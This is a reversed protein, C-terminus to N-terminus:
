NLPEYLDINREFKEMERDLQKRNAIKNMREQILKEVDKDVYAERLLDLAAEYSKM